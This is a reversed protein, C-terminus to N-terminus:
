LPLIKQGSAKYQLTTQSLQNLSFPARLNVPEYGPVRSPVVMDICVISLWPWIV